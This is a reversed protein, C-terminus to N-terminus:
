RRLGGVGSRPHPKSQSNFTSHGHRNSSAVPCANPAVGESERIGGLTRELVSVVMRMNEDLEAFEEPALDDAAFDYPQIKALDIATQGYKNKALPNAGRALLWEVVKLQHLQAALLLRRSWTRHCAAPIKTLYAIIDMRAKRFALDLPSRKNQDLERVRAGAEVLLRVFVLRGNEAAIHLPTQRHWDTANIDAGARILAEAFYTDDRDIAFHLPTSKTHATTQDIEVDYSLVKKLLDRDGKGVCWHLPGIGRSDLLRWDLSGAFAEELRM